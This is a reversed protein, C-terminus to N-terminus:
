RDNEHVKMTSVVIYGLKQLDPKDNAVYNIFAAVAASPKVGDLIVAVVPKNKVYSRAVYTVAGPTSAVMATVAGSSDETLGTEVVPVSGMITKTFVARTGSSRPRNIVVIPRDNGGAQKWNTIRGAFIDRVQASTLKSVGAKPNVAIDFGVVAVKHDVLGMNGPALVDSDGMDAAGSSVM